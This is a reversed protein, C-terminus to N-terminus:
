VCHSVSILTTADGLCSCQGRNSVLSLSLCIHLISSEALLCSSHLQFASFPLVLVRWSGESNKAFCFGESGEDEIVEGSTKTIGPRRLLIVVSSEM